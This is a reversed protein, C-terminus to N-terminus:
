WPWCARCWERPRQAVAHLDDAKGAVGGVLLELDGVAIQHLALHLRVPQFGALDLDAVINQAVDDLVVGTFRAHATQLPQDALRQAVGRHANGFPLAARDPDRAFIQDRDEARRLELALRRHTGAHGADRGTEGPGRDAAIDQEDLRRRVGPEPRSIRVPWSPSTIFSLAWAASEITLFRAEASPMSALRKSFLSMWTWTGAPAVGFSPGLAPTAINMASVDNIVSRVMRLSVAIVPSILRRPRTSGTPPM